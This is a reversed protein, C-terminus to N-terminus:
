ASGPPSETRRHRQGRRQRRTSQYKGYAIAFKILYGLAYAAALGLLWPTVDDILKKMMVSALIKDREVEAATRPPENSGYRNNQGEWAAGDAGGQATNTKGQVTESHGFTQDKKPDIVARLQRLAAAADSEILERHLPRIVDKVADHLESSLSAPNAVAEDGAAAPKAPMPSNSLASQKEAPRVSPASANQGAGVLRTSDSRHDAVKDTAVGSAIDGYDFAAHDAPWGSSYIPSSSPQETPSIVPEAQAQGGLRTLGVGTMIIVIIWKCLRFHHSM